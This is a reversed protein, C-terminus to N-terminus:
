MQWKIMEVYFETLIFIALATCLHMFILCVVYGRLYIDYRSCFRSIHLVSHHFKCPAMNIAYTRPDRERLLLSHESFLSLTNGKVSLNRSCM